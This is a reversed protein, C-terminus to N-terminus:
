CAFFIQFKLNAAVNPTEPYLFLVKVTLMTTNSPIIISNHVSAGGYPDDMGNLIFYGHINGNFHGNILFKTNSQLGGKISPM